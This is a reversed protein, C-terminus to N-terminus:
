AYWSVYLPEGNWKWATRVHDITVYQRDKGDSGKYGQVRKKMIPAPVRGVCVGNVWDPTTQPVGPIPVTTGSMFGTETVNQAIEQVTITNNKVSLIQYFDRNTQDYGWHTYLIDGVKWDTKFESKWKRREKMRDEHEKIANFFDDSKQTLADISKFKYYWAHKKAKGRYAIGYIGTGDVRSFVVSEGEKRFVDMGQPVWRQKLLPIMKKM